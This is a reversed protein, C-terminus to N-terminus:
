LLKLLREKIEKASLGELKLGKAKDLLEYVKPIHSTAVRFTIEQGAVQVRIKQLNPYQRRKSIGTTKRGVGGERKAKGRRQISNAVIPRKGSIECVKSM